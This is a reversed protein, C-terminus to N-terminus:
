LGALKQWSIDIEELQETVEAGALSAVAEPSLGHPASTLAKVLESLKALVGKVQTAGDNTMELEAIDGFARVQGVAAQFEGKLKEEAAKNDAAQSDAAAAAQSDAASPRQSAAAAATGAAGQAADYAKDDRSPEAPPPAAAADVKGVQVEPPAQPFCDGREASTCDLGAKELKEVAAKRAASAAEASTRARKYAEQGAERAKKASENDTRDMKGFARKKEEREASAQESELSLRPLQKWTDRLALFEQLKRLAALVQESAGASPLVDAAKGLMRRSAELSREAENMSSLAATVDVVIDEEELGEMGARDPMVSVVESLRAELDKARDGWESAVVKGIAVAALRLMEVAKARPSLLSLQEAASAKARSMTLRARALFSNCTAVKPTAQPFEGRGGHRGRAPEVARRFMGGHVFRPVRGRPPRKVNFM